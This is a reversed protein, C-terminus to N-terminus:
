QPDLTETVPVSLIEIYGASDSSRCVRLSAWFRTANNFWIWEVVTHRVLDSLKGL